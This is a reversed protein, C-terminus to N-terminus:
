DVNGLLAEMALDKSVSTLGVASLSHLVDHLLGPYIDKPTKDNLVYMSWLVTEAIAKNQAATVLSNWVNYSPMVYDLDSTLDVDKEYVNDANDVNPIDSDITKMIIKIFEKERISLPKLLDKIREFQEPTRKYDPRSLYAAVYAYAFSKKYNGRQDYQKDLSEFVWAPVPAQAVNLVKLATFLEEVSPNEIETSQLPGAFPVLASLGHQGRMNLAKRLFEAKKNGKRSYQFYYAIKEWDKFVHEDAANGTVPPTFSAYLDVLTKQGVLGLRQAASTLAIRDPLSLDEDRLLIILHQAPIKSVSSSKLGSTDIQNRASLIAQELPKLKSFDQPNYAFRYNKDQLAKRLVTMNAAKLTKEAEDTLGDNFANDCFVDILDFFEPDQSAVNSAAQRELCALSAERNYLHALIGTIALAADYPEEGQAAYLDSAKDYAGIRLLEQLRLTLLDRGPEIPMDNEILRADAATLLASARLHRIIRSKHAPPIDNMLSVLVSRKANSWLDRGLAGDKTSKLLGMSELAAAQDETLAKPEKAKKPEAKDEENKPEKEEALPSEPKKEPKEPAAEEEKEEKAEEDDAKKEEAKEEPKKEPKEETQVVRNAM